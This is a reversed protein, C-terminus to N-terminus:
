AYVWKLLIDTTITPVNYVKRGIDPSLSYIDISYAKGTPDYHSVKPTKM